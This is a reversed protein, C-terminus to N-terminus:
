FQNMVSRRWPMKGMVDQDINEIDQCLQRYVAFAKGLLGGARQFALGANFNSIQRYTVRKRVTLSLFGQLAEFYGAAAPLIRAKGSALDMVYFDKRVQEPFSLFTWNPLVKGDPLIVMDWVGHAVDSYGRGILGTKNEKLAYISAQRYGRLFKKAAPMDWAEMFAPHIEVHRAGLGDLHKLNLLLQGAGQPYVTMTATSLGGSVTLLELARCVGRYYERGAGPRNARMTAENGDIGVEVNIRNENLFAMKRMNLLTVNSQVSIYNEPHAARIKQIWQRVRPWVLLPEGGSLIFEPRKFAGTFNMAARFIKETM